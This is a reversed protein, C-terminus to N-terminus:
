PHRARPSSPGPRTKQRAELARGLAAQREADARRGQRNYIDALVYRGLPAYESAPGVELGKQAIRVAEDFDQGLDLLLKALYFYGEAFRENAAIARRFAALQNQRDGLQEYLRGLNFEAKFSDPHIETERQYEAIASPLDDRREALLALNYHALRVDAKQDLAARVEREATALDGRKFAVVGLANRASALRADLELARRFFGGAKDLDHTDMYLEGLQYHVYANKPDSQLYREYGAIAADHQGLERYANAMNITALDYGPSLKLAHKYAELARSPESRRMYANGLMTWADIIDPDTAIVKELKEISTTRTGSASEERASLLMNFVDIKDKPDPLRIGPARPTESFTGIYGLAALRERTEPDVSPREPPQAATTSTELARLQAAMRDALARREDYLNKTEAPDQETDYLEPRPAEIYKYRGARLARLESWGFHFRPYYTEAYGDLNLDSLTGGMLPVLSRGHIGRPAEVRLLDLVTPMVDESRVFSGVTRSRLRDYPTRIILPVRLTADYIFLGHTGEGHENLSEGHDGLAVVITRDSLGREDLWGLVRGIQADMYAIEGLYPRQAYMTKYPEPPDYPSHPDYFHLWAFFRESAHQDLWPLAQDVVESAPRSIDGLSASKYKSLDFDDFYTDFGQDLGWKSDLVFAAVFAGTAWGGRRRLVSALTPHRTDLTYGGNDRVGHAPPVTSTFITAHAPLTLPVPAMVQDFRVGGAALRDLNPTAAQPEGYCGLKDARTTDLTLFLVNLDQVGVGRPLSGLSTGDSGVVAPLYLRWAGWALALLVVIGAAAMWVRPGATLRRRPSRATPNRPPTKKM